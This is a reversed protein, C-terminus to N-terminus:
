AERGGSSSSSSASGLAIKRSEEEVGCKRGELACM